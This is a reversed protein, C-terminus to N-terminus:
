SLIKFAVILGYIALVEVLAVFLIMFALASNKNAPNRYMSNIAGGVLCGEGVGAGLAALGISFGAGLAAAGIIASTGLIQFGIVLGYIAASEVLAIGLITITLFFSTLEPARGMVVLARQALIGEGIGVGLGALGIALGAGVAVYENINEISLIQFSMILGYIAASEVLALFLIMFTTIKSKNDPNLNIAELAGSVLIGEGIGVGLGALGIGLGVGVATMGQLGETGLIQFAIILGYIAVSEVLAVGLITVTLYFTSMKPNKGMIEMARFTLIGQGIAAGICALGVALGAGLYTLDM